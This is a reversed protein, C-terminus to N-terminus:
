QKTFRSIPNLISRTTTNAVVCGDPNDTPDPCEVAPNEARLTIRRDEAARAWEQGHDRRQRKYTGARVIGVDGEELKDILGQLTCPSASTCDTGGDGVDDDAFHTAADAPSALGLVLLGISVFLYKM